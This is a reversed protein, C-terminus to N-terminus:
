EELERLKEDMPEPVQQEESSGEKELMEVPPEPIEPIMIEADPIIPMGVDPVDPIEFEPYPPYAPFRDWRYRFQEPHFQDGMSKQWEEMAKRAEEQVKRFQEQIEARQEFWQERQQEWQERHQLRFEELARRAEEQSKRMQERFEESRWYEPLVKPFHPVQSLEGQIQKEMELREALPIKRRAMEAEQMAKQLEHQMEALQRNAEELERRSHDMEQQIKQLEEQYQKMEERTVAKGNVTMERITDNEFVVKVKKKGGDGATLTTQLTGQKIRNGSADPQMLEPFAKSVTTESSPAPHEPKGTIMLTMASVGVTALFLLIVALRFAPNHKMEPKLLRTVRRLLQKPKGTLANGTVPSSFNMEHIMTLAKIYNLPNVNKKMALDDCANERERDIERMLYWALPHFFLVQLALAQLIVLLHDYRRIHALEHLLIAELQSPHLGIVAAVPLIVLPKFFGTVLPSIRRPTMRLRVVGPIRLTEQLRRFIEELSKSPLLLEKKMALHTMVMGGTFRMGTFTFGTMWGIALPIYFPELWNMVLTTLRDPSYVLARPLDNALALLSTLNSGYNSLDLRNQRYVLLVTTIFCTLLVMLGAYLIAYRRRANAKGSLTLLFLMLATIVAGQWLSHVMAMGLSRIIEQSIIMTLTM